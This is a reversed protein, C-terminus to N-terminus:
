EEEEIEEAGCVPCSPIYERCFGFAHEFGSPIMYPEDFKAGCDECVYM